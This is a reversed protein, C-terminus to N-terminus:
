GTGTFRTRKEMEDGRSRQMVKSKGILGRNRIIVYILIFYQIDLVVIEVMLYSFLDQVILLLSSFLFSLFLLVYLRRHTELHHHRRFVDAVRLVFFVLFVDAISWLIGEIRALRLFLSASIM